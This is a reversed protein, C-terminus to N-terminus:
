YDINADVTNNASGINNTFDAPPFNANMSCNYMSFTVDNTSVGLLPSNTGGDGHLITSYKIRCRSDADVTWEIAPHGAAGKIFSRDVILWTNTDSVKVPPAATGIVTTKILYVFSSIDGSNMEINVYNPETYRGCSVLSLSADTGSLIAKKGGTLQKVNVFSLHQHNGLETLTTAHTTNISWKKNGDIQVNINPNIVLPLSIDVDGELNIITDTLVSGKLAEHINRYRNAGGGVNKIKSVTLVEGDIGNCQHNGTYEIFEIPVDSTVDGEGAPTGKFLTNIIRKEGLPDSYFHIGNYIISSFIDVKNNTDFTWKGDWMETWMSMLTWDGAVHMSSSMRCNEVKFRKNSTGDGSSFLLSGGTISCNRLAIFRNSATVGELKFIDGYLYCNNFYMSMYKDDTLNEVFYGNNFRCISCTLKNNIRGFVGGADVELSVGILNLGTDAGIDLPYHDADAGTNCIIVDHTWGEFDHSYSVIYIRRHSTTIHETYRGPAVKIVCAEDWDVVPNLLTLAYTIAAGITNFQNTAENNIFNQSVHLEWTPVIDLRTSQGM